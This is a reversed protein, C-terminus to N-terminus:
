NRISSERSFRIRRGKTEPNFENTFWTSDSFARAKELLAHAATDVQSALRANDARCPIVRTDMPTQGLVMWIAIQTAYYEDIQALGEVGLERQWADDDTDNGFGNAILWAVECQVRADARALADLPGSGDRSLSYAPAIQGNFQVTMSPISLARGDALRYGSSDCSEQPDIRINDIYISGSDLNPISEFEPATVKPPLMARIYRLPEALWLNNFARKPLDSYRESDYDSADAIPVVAVDSVIDPQSPAAFASQSQPPPNAAMDAAYTDDPQRASEDNHSKGVAAPSRRKRQVREPQVSSDVTSEIAANEIASVDAETGSSHKRERM